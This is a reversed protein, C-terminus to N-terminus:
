LALSFSHCVYLKDPTDKLLVALEFLAVNMQNARVLERYQCFNEDALIRIWCVNIYSKKYTEQQIPAIDIWFM